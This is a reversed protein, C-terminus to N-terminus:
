VRDDPGHATDLFALHWTHGKFIGFDLRYFYYGM